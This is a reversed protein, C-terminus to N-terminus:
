QLKTSESYLNSLKLSDNMTVKINGNRKDKLHGGRAFIMIERHWLLKKEVSAIGLVIKWTLESCDEVVPSSIIKLLM